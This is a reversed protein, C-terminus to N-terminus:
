PHETPGHPVLVGLRQKQLSRRCPGLVPPKEEAVHGVAPGVCSVTGLRSCGFSGQGLARQRRCHRSMPLLSSTQQM